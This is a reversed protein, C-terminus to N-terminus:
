MKQPAIQVRDQRSSNDCARAEYRWMGPGSGSSVASSSSRAEVQRRGCCGGFIEGVNKWYAHRRRRWSRWYTSGFLIYGHYKAWHRMGCLHGDLSDITFDRVNLLFFRSTMKSRYGECGRFVVDKVPLASYRSWLSATILTTNKMEIHMKTCVIRIYRRWSYWEARNFRM